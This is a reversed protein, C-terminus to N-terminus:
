MFKGRPGNNVDSVLTPMLKTAQVLKRYAWAALDMQPLNEMVVSVAYLFCPFQCPCQVPPFCSFLRHYLSENLEIM